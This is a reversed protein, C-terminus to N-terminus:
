ANRDSISKQPLCFLLIEKHRKLAENSAKHLKNAMETLRLTKKVSEQRNLQEKAKLRGIQRGSSVPIQSSNFTAQEASDSESIVIAGSAGAIENITGGSEPDPSLTSRRNQSAFFKPHDRLIRWAQLFKFPKRFNDSESWIRIKNYLATAIWIIDDENVRYPKSCRVTAVLGPTSLM